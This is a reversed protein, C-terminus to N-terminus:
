GQANHLNKAEDLKRISNYMVKLIKKQKTRLFCFAWFCPHWAAKLSKQTFFYAFHAFFIVYTKGYTINYKPM